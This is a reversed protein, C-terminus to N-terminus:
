FGEVARMAFGSFVLSIRRLGHVGLASGAGDEEHENRNQSREDKEQKELAGQADSSDALRVDGAIGSPAEEGELGHETLDGQLIAADPQDHPRRGM